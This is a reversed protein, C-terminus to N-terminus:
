TPSVRTSTSPCRSWTAPGGVHSPFGGRCVGPVTFHQATVVYGLSRWRSAVDDAAQDYAASTSERPGIRGALRRVTTLVRRVDFRAPAPAAEDTSSSPGSSSPQPTASETMVPAAPTPTARDPATEMSCGVLLLVGVSLSASTLFRVGMWHDFCTSTALLDGRSSLSRSCRLSRRGSARRETM